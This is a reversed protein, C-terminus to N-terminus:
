DEQPIIGSVRVHLTDGDDSVGVVRYNLESLPAETLRENLLDLFRELDSRIIECLEVSVVEHVCGDNQQQLKAEEMGFPIPIPETLQRKAIAIAGEKGVNESWSSGNFTFTWYPHYHGDPRRKGRTYEATLQDVGNTAIFKGFGLNEIKM